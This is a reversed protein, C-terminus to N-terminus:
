YYKQIDIGHDVHRLLGVTQRDHHYQLYIIGVIEDVYNKNEIIESISDLSNSEVYKSKLNLPLEKRSHHLM